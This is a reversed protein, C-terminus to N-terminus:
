GRCDECAEGFVIWASRTLLTAQSLDISRYNLTPALLIIEQLISTYDNQMQIYRRYLPKKM